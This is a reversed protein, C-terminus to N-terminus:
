SQALVIPDSWLTLYDIQVQCKITGITTGDLAPAIIVHACALQVPNSSSDGNWDIAQSPKTVRENKRLSWNLSLQRRDNTSTLYSYPGKKAEVIHQTGALLSSSYDLATDADHVLAIFADETFGSSLMYNVTIKAGIVCYHKFFQTMQDFGYPQHGTGTYNTDYMGNLIFTYNELSSTTGPIMTITEFYKHRMLRSNGLPYGVNTGIVSSRPNSVIRNRRSRYVKRKIRNTKKSRVIYKLKKRPM